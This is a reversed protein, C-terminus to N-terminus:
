PRVLFGAPTTEGESIRVAAIEGNFFLDPSGTHPSRGVTLNVGSSLEGPQTRNSEAVQKGNVYLILAGEPTRVGALHVWQGPPVPETGKVSLNEGNSNVGFVPFYQNDKDILSLVFGTTARGPDRNSLITPNRPAAEINFRIWAEATFPAGAAFHLARGLESTRLFQGSGAAFSAARGLPITAREPGAEVVTPREAPTSQTLAVDRAGGALPRIKGEIPQGAPENQFTWTFLPSAALATPLLCLLLIRSPMNM